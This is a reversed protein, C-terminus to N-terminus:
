HKYNSYSSKHNSKPKETQTYHSHIIDEEKPNKYAQHKTSHPKKAAKYVPAPNHSYGSVEPTHHTYTPAKSTVVYTPHKPHHPKHAPAKTYTKSETHHHAKHHSKTPYPHYKITEGKPTKFGGTHGYVPHPKPMKPAPKGKTMEYGDVEKYILLPSRLKDIFDLFGLYLVQILFYLGLVFANYFIIQSVSMYKEMFGLNRIFEIVWGPIQRLQGDLINPFAIGSEEAVALVSNIGAEITKNDITDIIASISGNKVSQILAEVPNTVNKTQYSNGVMSSLIVIFIISKM